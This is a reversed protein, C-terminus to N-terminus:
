TLRWVSVVVGPEPLAHPDGVYRKEVSLSCVQADDGLCPGTLSDLLSRALKDVDPKRDPWLDRKRRSAPRRLTFTAVVAVPGKLPEELRGVDLMSMRAAHAVIERWPRLYTNASTTVAKGNVVFARTSGQPQPTGYATFTVPASPVPLPATM